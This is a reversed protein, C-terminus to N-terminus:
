AQAPGQTANVAQPYIIAWRERDPKGPRWCRTYTEYAAQEDGVAPLPHPDAYLLLRAMGVALADCWAVAVHIQPLVYPIDLAELLEALKPETTSNTGLANCGAQEFQWFSRGLNPAGAQL